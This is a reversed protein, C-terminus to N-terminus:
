TRPSKDIKIWRRRGRHATQKKSVSGTVNGGQEEINQKAENRTLKELRGTLVITKGNFFSDMHESQIRERGKYTMNVGASKLEKLLQEVEENEFFTAIADAMKEGVEPVSLLEDRTASTILDITEFHEALTQAARAGVHRIGLGFLLKELSNEKSNEISTLLNSVSKEGMRELELLPEKALFYLDAADKVLGNAFLQGIVKEGLGEINM